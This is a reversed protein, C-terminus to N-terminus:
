PAGHYQLLAYIHLEFDAGGFFRMPRWWLLFDVTTNSVGNSCEERPCFQYRSYLAFSGYASHTRVHFGPSPHSTFNQFIASSPISTSSIPLDRLPGPPVSHCRTASSEVNIRNLVRVMVIQSRCFMDLCTRMACVSSSPILPTRRRACVGCRIM